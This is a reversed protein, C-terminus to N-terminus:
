SRSGELERQGTLDAVAGAVTEAVLFVDLFGTSSLLERTAGPMGVLALRQRRMRARRHLLLLVRLGSSSLYPVDSLDLVVAGTDPVTLDLARSVEEATARNLDGTLALVAADGVLRRTIHM